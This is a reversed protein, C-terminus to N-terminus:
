RQVVCLIFVYLRNMSVTILDCPLLFPLCHLVGFM